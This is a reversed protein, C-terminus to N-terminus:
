LRRAIAAARLIAGIQRAKSVGEAMSQLGQMKTQNYLRARKAMGQTDGGEVVRVLVPNQMASVSQPDVGFWKEANAALYSRYLDAGSLNDAFALQLSM